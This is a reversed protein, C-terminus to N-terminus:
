SYKLINDWTSRHIAFSIVNKNHLWGDLETSRPLYGWYPCFRRVYCCSWVVIAINQINLDASFEKFYKTIIRSLYSDQITVQDNNTEIGSDDYFVSHTHITSV